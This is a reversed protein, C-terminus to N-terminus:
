IKPPVARGEVERWKTINMIIPLRKTTQYYMYSGIFSTSGIVLFGGTVIVFAYPNEELHNILNMGFLSAGFACFSTALSAFSVVLNIRM